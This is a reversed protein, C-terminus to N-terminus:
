QVTGPSYDRNAGIFERCGCAVAFVADTEANKGSLDTGCRGCHLGLQYHEAVDAFQRFWEVMRAKLEVRELKRGDLPVVGSPTWLAKGNGDM